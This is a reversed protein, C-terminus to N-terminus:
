SKIAMSLLQQDIAQLRAFDMRECFVDRAVQWPNEDRPQLNTAAGWWNEGQLALRFALYNALAGVDVGAHTAVTVVARKLYEIKGNAEAVVRTTLQEQQGDLIVASAFEAADIEEDSNIREYPSDSTEVIGFTPEDPRQTTHRLEHILDHLWRALSPTRQKLVIVHRREHRWCAGHFTGRDALPLVPIGVDWAYQLASRLSLNGYRQVIAARLEAASSPVHSQGKDHANLVAMALHYAYATYTALGKGARAPLKFLAQGATLPPPTPALFGGPPWNLVRDLVSAATAVATGEDGYLEHQQLAAATDAPLLRSFLFDRDFGLEQVRAYLAEATGQASPLYFDKHVRVNLADIIEKIRTLSASAYATAEYRQIQQEKLGLKEALDRQSLGAAIRAQILANPLEDFSRASIHHRAGSRLQEYENIQQRLDEIQSRVADREAQVLRPHVAMTAPTDNLRDLAREFQKAQAKTIRYERENKIM